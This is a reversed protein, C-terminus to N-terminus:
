SRNTDGEDVERWRKKLEEYIEFRDAKTIALAQLRLPEYRDGLKMRM